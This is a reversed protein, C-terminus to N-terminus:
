KTLITYNFKFYQIKIRHFKTYLCKQTGKKNPIPLPDQCVEENFLGFGVGSWYLAKCIRHKSWKQSRVSCM